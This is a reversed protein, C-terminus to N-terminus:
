SSPSHSHSGSAGSPLPHWPSPKAGREPAVQASTRSIAASTLSGRMARISSTAMQGIARCAAPAGIRQIAMSCDLLRGSSIMLSRVM